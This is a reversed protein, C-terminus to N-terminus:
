RSEISFAWGRHMRNGFIEIEDGGESHRWLQYGSSKKVLEFGLWQLHKSLVKRVQNYESKSLQGVSYISGQSFEVDVVKRLADYLNRMNAQLAMRVRKEDMLDKALLILEKAIKENM